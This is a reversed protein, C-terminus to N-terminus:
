WYGFVRKVNMLPLPLPMPFSSKREPFLTNRQIQNKKNALLFIWIQTNLFFSSMVPLHPPEWFQRSPLFGLRSFAFFCLCGELEVILLLPWEAKLLRLGAPGRQGM